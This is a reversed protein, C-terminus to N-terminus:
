LLKRKLTGYKRYGNYIRTSYYKSFSFSDRLVNTTPCQDANLCIVEVRKEPLFLSSKINTSCAHAKLIYCCLVVAQPRRCSARSGDRLLLPDQQRHRCCCHNCLPPLRLPVGFLMTASCHGVNRVKFMVSLSQLGRVTIFSQFYCNIDSHRQVAWVESNLFNLIQLIPVINEKWVNKTALIKENTKVQCRLPWTQALLCYNVFWVKRFNWEEIQTFVTYGIETLQSGFMKRLKWLPWTQTWSCYLEFRKPIRNLKPCLRPEWM